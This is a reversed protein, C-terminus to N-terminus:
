ACHRAFGIDQTELAAKAIRSGRYALKRLVQLYLEDELSHALEYDKAAAAQRIKAISTKIDEVSLRQYGGVPKPKTDVSVVDKQDTM